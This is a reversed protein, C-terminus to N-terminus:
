RKRARRWAEAAKEAEDIQSRNMKAGLANRRATPDYKKNVALVAEENDMALSFWKYAEVPDKKVGWGEGYMAGMLFQAAPHGQNAALGYFHVAKDYDNPVGRGAAYMQGLAFQADANKGPGAAVRFWEAARFNDQGIGLGKEYMRGIELQAKPNGQQAAKYYWELAKKYDKGGKGAGAAYLRAVELQANLDGTSAKKELATIQSRSAFPNAKQAMEKAEEMTTGTFLFWFAGAAIALVLFLAAVLKKM